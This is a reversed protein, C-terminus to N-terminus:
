LWQWPFNAHGRDLVTPMTLPFRGRAVLWPCTCPVHNHGHGLAMGKGQGYTMARPERGAAWSRHDPPAHAMPVSEVLSWPWPRPGPGHGANAWLMPSQGHGECHNRDPGHSESIAIAVLIAM